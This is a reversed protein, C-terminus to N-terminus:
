ALHLSFNGYHNPKELERYVVCTGFLEYYRKMLVEIEDINRHLENIGPLIDFNDNTKENHCLKKNRFDKIRNHIAEIKKIDEDFNIKQLRELYIWAVSEKEIEGTDMHIDITKKELENKLMEYNPAYKLLCIFHKLTHKKQDGKGPELLKCLNLVLVNYYNDMCWSIFPNGKAKQETLAKYFDSFVQRKLELECFVQDVDKLYDRADEYSIASLNNPWTKNKEM